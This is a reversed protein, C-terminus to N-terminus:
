GPYATRSSVDPSKASTLAADSLDDKANNAKDEPAYRSGILTRVVYEICTSQLAEELPFEAELPECATSSGDADCTMSAVEEPNEFVGSLRLRRLHKAQAMNGRVYLRMDPGIACYIFKRLWRNHGTYTLREMPVLSFREGLMFNLPYVKPIGVDLMSPIKETSVLWEGAGTGCVGDEGSSLELDLCIEQMDSEPVASDDRGNRGATYKRELLLARMKDLLFVIHEETFFADDSAMKLIDLCQYVM